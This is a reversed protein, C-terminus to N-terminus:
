LHWSYENYAYHNDNYIINLTIDNSKVPTVNIIRPIM